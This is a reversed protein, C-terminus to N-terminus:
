TDFNAVKKVILKGFLKYFSQQSGLMELFIIYINKQLADFFAM